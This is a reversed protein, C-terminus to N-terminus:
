CGMKGEILKYIVYRLKELAGKFELVGKKEKLYLAAQNFNLIAYNFLSNCIEFLIHGCRVKDGSWSMLWDSTFGVVGDKAQFKFKTSLFICCRIYEEIKDQVTRMQPKNFMESNTIVDWNFETKLQTLRQFFPAVGPWCDPLKLKKCVHAQFITLFDICKSKNPGFSNLM